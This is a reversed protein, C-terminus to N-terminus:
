RKPKRLTLKAIPVCNRIEALRACEDAAIAQARALMAAANGRPVFCVGTEDALVLLSSFFHRPFTHIPM